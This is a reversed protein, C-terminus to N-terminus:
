PSTMSHYALERNTDYVNYTQMVIVNKGKCFQTGRISCKLM